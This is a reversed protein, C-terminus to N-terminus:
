SVKHSDITVFPVQMKFCGNKEAIKNLRAEVLEFIGTRAQDDVIEKWSDLFALQIFFHNFMTTGDVFRYEFGDYDIERIVFGNSRMMQEIEKLPKRKLHIHKKLTKVEEMRNKETLVEELINYFEIMTTNLNMTFVMQGHKRIVRSCEKFVQEMDEVNNLGNNSVILDLSNDELPINEAEAQILRINHIGYHQIKKNVRELPAEWPDIGYVLCSNGLRMALETLPFGLGFGIDLATIGAKLQIKDLLKLGFPASWIPLEDLTDILVPDNLDFSKELYHPM